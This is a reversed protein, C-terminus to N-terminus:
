ALIQSRLVTQDPDIQFSVARALATQVPTVEFGPLWRRLPEPDLAHPMSWIYRMELLGRASSWFPVALRIPLWNMGRVTVRRGTVSQLADALKRGPLTYGAFPIDAFRPLRDRIEALGVMARAVDPLYAFAHDADPAGPWTIRGKRLSKTLVLNFWNGSARTDIYDGARLIITKVGAARYAQEMGIRLLGLPNSAAHPTDATLMPPAKDGYVYVNGPIIVTADNRKAAAITRETLRHTTKAWDAYSPPHWGCLIVDATAAQAMLDDTKRNHLITTWGAAQFARAANSGIRGSPGLILITRTM